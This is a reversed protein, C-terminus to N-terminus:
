VTVSDYFGNELRSKYLHMVCKRIAMNKSRHTGLYEDCFRSVYCYGCLDLNISYRNDLDKSTILSMIIFFQQHIYYLRLKYTYTAITSLKSVTVSHLLKRITVISM